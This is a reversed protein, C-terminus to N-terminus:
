EVEVINRQKTKVELMQNSLLIRESDDRSDFFKLAIDAQQRKCQLYPKVLLLFTKASAGYVGWQYIDKGGTKSKRMQLHGIFHDSLFAIMGPDTNVIRVNTRFCLNRQGPQTKNVSCSISGEGDLVGAAYGLVWDEM